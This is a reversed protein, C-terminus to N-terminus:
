HYYNGGRVNAAGLRDIAEDDAANAKGRLPAGEMRQELMTKVTKYSPSRITLAKQCALELRMASHKNALRLIGL